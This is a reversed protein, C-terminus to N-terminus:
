TKGKKDIATESINIMKDPKPAKKSLESLVDLYDEFKQQYDPVTSKELANTDLWDQVSLLWPLFGQRNAKDRGIQAVYIAYLRREMNDANMETTFNEVRM